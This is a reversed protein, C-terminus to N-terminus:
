LDWLVWHRHRGDQAEEPVVRAAQRQAKHWARKKARKWTDTKRRQCWGCKHGGPQDRDSRSM